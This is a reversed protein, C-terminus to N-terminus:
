AGGRAPFATAIRAHREARRVATATVHTADVCTIPWYPTADEVAAHRGADCITVTM